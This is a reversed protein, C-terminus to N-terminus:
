EVPTRLSQTNEVAVFNLCGTRVRHHSQSLLSHGYAHLYGDACTGENYWPM